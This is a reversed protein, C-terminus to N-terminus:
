FSYGFREIDEGFRREVMKRATEDYYSKYDGITAALVHPLTRETKLRGCVEAFDDQLREFRGVFDVLCEGGHDFIFKYQPVEHDRRTGETYELYDHFSLMHGTAKRHYCYISVMREWPNRIFAFRFYNGFEDGLEDRLESATLHQLFKSSFRRSRLEASTIPGFMNERSEEGYMGLAIEMSTGGTRPVHVFLCNLERSVPM